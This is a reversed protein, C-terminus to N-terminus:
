GFIAHNIKLTKNVRLAAFILLTGELMELSRTNKLLKRRFRAFWHCQRANNQEISFTKDKEQFLRNSPIIKNFGAWHDKCYFLIKWKKLREFLRKFTQSLHDGFKWDFLQKGARDCVKFIWAKSIWAKFIWFKKSRKKFLAM